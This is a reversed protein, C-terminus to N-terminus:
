KTKVACRVVFTAVTLSLATILLMYKFENHGGTMAFLDFKEFKNRLFLNMIFYSASIMYGVVHNESIGSAFFGLSGIFLGNICTNIYLRFTVKSGNCKMYFALVSILLILMIVACIFRLLCVFEHNTKKSCVTDYINQNQEPMFIPVLLIIGLICSVFELPQASLMGSLESLGFIVPTLLVACISLIYHTIFNHRVDLCVVRALCDSRM